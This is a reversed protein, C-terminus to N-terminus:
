KGKMQRQLRWAIFGLALVGAILVAWLAVRRPPIEGLYRRWVTEVGSVEVPGLKAEALKREAGPEYDPMLSAVPLVVSNAEDNGFALVFPAQGKAVFIIEAPRWQAELSPRSGEAFDRVRPKLRWHRASRRGIELPPSLIEVGDRRLRYFTGSGATRWPTDPGDRLAVEFPIVTNPEYFVVRVAEVPLRAGLDFLLDGEKTRETSQVVRTEREPPKISAASEAHVSRLAFPGDDWTIRLYKARTGGLMVRTQTLTQGDHAVHVLPSRAALPRWARLDESAEVSVRVIQSGPSADWDFRLAGIPFKVQSGDLLYAVPRADGKPGPRERVAIVTGDRRTRVHVDLRGGPTASRTTVTFQPLTAEKTVEREPQPQTAFAFPVSEGAANLVRIDTLDRRADRYAEFPLELRQLADGGTLTIPAKARFDDAQASAAILVCVLAASRM